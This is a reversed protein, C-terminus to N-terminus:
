PAIVGLGDGIAVEVMVDVVVGALKETTGEEGFNVQHSCVVLDGDM